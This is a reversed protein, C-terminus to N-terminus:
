GVRKLKKVNPRDPSLVLTGSHWFILFPSNSWYPASHEPLSMEAVTLFLTPSFPNLVSTVCLLSDTCSYDSLWSYVQNTKAATVSQNYKSYVLLMICHRQHYPMQSALWLDHTQTKAPCWWTTAKPLSSLGTHRLWWATYNPVLWPATISNLQSPSRAGPSFYHCGVVPNTALDSVM